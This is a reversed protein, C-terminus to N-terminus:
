DDEMEGQSAFDSNTFASLLFAGEEAISRHEVELKHCWAREEKESLDSRELADSLGQAEIEHMRMLSALDELRTALEETSLTTMEVEEPLPIPKSKREPLRVNKRTM